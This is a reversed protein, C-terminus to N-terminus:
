PCPARTPDCVETCASNREYATGAKICYAGAIDDDGAGISTVLQTCTMGTGCTCYSAGDDTRGLANACRCSCFVTREATRDTCQATVLPNGPTWAFAGDPTECRTKALGYPCTTRGRFHNILCVGDGCEPHRTELSVEDEHFGVFSPDNEREPTCARGLLDSARSQPASADAAGSETAIGGCGLGWCTALLAVMSRKM